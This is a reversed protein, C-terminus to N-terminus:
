NSGKNFINFVIMKPCPKQFMISGFTNVLECVYLDPAIVLSSEQLTKCFKGAKEKQLLVEMVGSVDMVVTM